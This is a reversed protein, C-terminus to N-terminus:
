KKFIGISFACVRWQNIQHYQHSGSSGTTGNSLIMIVDLRGDGAGKKCIHVWFQRAGAKYRAFCTGRIVDLGFISMHPPPNIMSGVAQLASTVMGVM